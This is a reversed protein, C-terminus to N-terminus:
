PTSAEGDEKEVQEAAIELLRRTSARVAFGALFTYITGRSVYSIRCFAELDRSEIALRVRRRLAKNDDRVSAIVFTKRPRNSDMIERLDLNQRTLFVARVGVWNRVM